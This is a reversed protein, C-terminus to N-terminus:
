GYFKATAGDPFTVYASQVDLGRDKIGDLATANAAHFVVPDSGLSFGAHEWGEPYPHGVRPACIEILDVRAGGVRIPDRLAILTIPRGAFDDEATEAAFPLFGAVALRYAEPSVTRWCLHSVPMASADIGRAALRELLSEVFGPIADLAEGGNM